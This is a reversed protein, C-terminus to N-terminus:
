RLIKFVQTPFSINRFEFWLLIRYYFPIMDRYLINSNVEKFKNRVQEKKLIHSNNLLKIKYDLKIKVLSTEFVKKDKLLNNIQQIVKEISTLTKLSTNNTLSSNRQIYIYVEDDLFSLNPNKLLIQTLILKDEMCNVDEDFSLGDYCSKKILKNWLGAHFEGLLMGQLFEEASHTVRHKIVKEDNNLSRLIYNAVTIDAQTNIAKNHLNKLADPRLIDDADVHFIYTGTANKIGVNRASSVGGNAKNILRVRKDIKGFAECINQSQDTSGDNILLLEFESFSQSLVSEITEKLFEEANYIPVIISIAASDSMM